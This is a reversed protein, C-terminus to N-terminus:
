WPSFSRGRFTSKAFTHESIAYPPRLGPLTAPERFHRLSGGKYVSVDWSDRVIRDLSPTRQAHRRPQTLKLHSKVGSEKRWSKGFIMKRKAGGVSKTVPKAAVATKKIKKM